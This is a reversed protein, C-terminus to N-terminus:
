PAAATHSQVDLGQVGPGQVGLSDRKIELLEASGGAGEVDTIAQTYMAHAESSKGLAALIDGRTEAFLEREGQKGIKKIETWAAEPKGETLLVQALRARAVIALESEGGHDLVWQLHRKADALKNDDVELRALLLATLRSYVSNSDGDIITQGVKRVDDSPGAAALTLFQQYNLSASEARANQTSDWYRYGFLGSLGVLLGIFIAKGNTDFWKKIQDVQERDTTYEEM